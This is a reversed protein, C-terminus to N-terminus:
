RDLIRGAIHHLMSLKGITFQSYSIGQDKSIYGMRYQVFSLANWAILLFFLTGAAALAKREMAWDLIAAMGLSLVPLASILMRGGFSDGGWWVNWASILYLELLFTAGLVFPLAREKRYLLFLGATAFLLIPHWLYLGHRLSFLINLFQPDLWQFNGASYLHAQWPGSHMMLWVIIQPILVVLVATCFIAFRKLLIAPSTNEVKRTTFFADLIPLVVWPADQLRVILVLGGAIGLFAWHRDTQIRRSYLWLWTFLSVAFFSCNHSMSPEATMYYILSSALWISIAAWASICKSFFRRSILYTFLSGLFGYTISGVLTSGQYLYGMGDTEVPFSAVKLLVAAIHGVTFFPLWLIASGIAYKNAPRGGKNQINQKYTSPVLKAYQNSFDLDHDILVTPLYAYYYAGDSGTLQGDARPLPICVLFVTICAVYLAILPRIPHQDLLHLLMTWKAAM